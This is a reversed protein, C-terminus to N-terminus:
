RDEVLKRYHFDVAFSWVAFAASLMCSLCLSPNKFCNQRPPLLGWPIEPEMPAHGGALRLVLPPLAAAPRSELAPTQLLGGARGGFPRISRCINGWDETYQGVRFDNLISIYWVPPPLAAAPKPKKLSKVSRKQDPDAPARRCVSLTGNTTAKMANMGKRGPGSPDMAGGPLVPEPPTNLVAKKKHTKPDM